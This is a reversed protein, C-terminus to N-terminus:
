IVFSALYFYKTKMEETTSLQNDKSYYLFTANGLQVQNIKRTNIAMFTSQLIGAKKM